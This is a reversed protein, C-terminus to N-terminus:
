IRQDLTLSWKVAESFALKMKLAVSVRIVSYPSFDEKLTYM